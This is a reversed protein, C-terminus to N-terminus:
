NGRWSGTVVSVTSKGGPASAPVFNVPVISGGNDHVEISRAMVPGYNRANDKQLYDDVVYTAAQYVANDHAEFGYQDTSSGAIFVILNHATDWSSDCSAVGCFRSNNNIFITGSTYITGIGSYTGTTLVLNGDFFVTGLITLKQTAADWTLQAVTTPGSTVTCTYSSAPTLTFTPLSRNLTTDNDFGGPVTGNTCPHSPGPNAHAYWYALDVSPKTYNDVTTTVSSAYVQQVPSCATWPGGPNRSCGGAIKAQAIPTAASGVKASETLTLTGNVQLTSSTIQTNDHACLPGNVYFPMSIAVNDKLTTCGDGGDSYWYNWLGAGGPTVKAQESVTETIPAASSEAPNRMAGKGYLAWTSSSADYSGWYSVTGDSFSTDVVPNGAGALSSPDTPDAANAVVSLAESLGAQALEGVAVRSRDRGATQSAHTTYELAAVAVIMLAALVLLALVLAIGRDDAARTGAPKRM